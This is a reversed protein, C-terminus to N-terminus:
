PVACAFPSETVQIGPSLQVEQAYFAGKYKSNPLANLLLPASPAIVVGSFPTQLNVPLTGHYGLVFQSPQGNSVIAGQYVVLQLVDVDVSGGTTDLQITSLPLANLSKFFYQGSALQLTGSSLVNVNGYSGPALTKHQGLNVVVDGSSTTPFPSILTPFPPLVPSSNALVPGSVTAGLQESISGASQVSGNVAAGNLEVPAVSFISGSTTAFGLETESSRGAGGNDITAPSGAASLISVHDAVELEGEAFLAPAATLEVTQQFPATVGSCNTATWEVTLVGPSLTAQGNVLSVPVPLATGNVATVQGTVTVGTCDDTAVPVPLTILQATPECTM